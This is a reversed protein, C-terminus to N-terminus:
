GLIELFSHTLLKIPLSVLLHFMGGVHTFCFLDDPILSLLLVLLPEV